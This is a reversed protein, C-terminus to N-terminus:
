TSEEDGMLGGGNDSLEKMNKIHKLDHIRELEEVTAMRPEIHTVENKLDSVDVLSKFRRKSEPSEWHKGAQMHKSPKYSGAYTGTDHWFYYEHTVFGVKRNVGMIRGIRYSISM